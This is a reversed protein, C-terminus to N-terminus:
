TIFDTPFEVHRKITLLEYSLYDSEVTPFAQLVTSEYTNGPVEHM